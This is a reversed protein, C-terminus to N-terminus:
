SVPSAQSSGSVFRNKRQLSRPTQPGAGAGSLCVLVERDFQAFRPDRQPVPHILRTSRPAFHRAQLKETLFRRVFDMAPLATPAVRKWEIRPLHRDLPQPIRSSADAFRSIDTKGRNDTFPCSIFKL